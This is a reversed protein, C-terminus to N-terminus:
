HFGRICDYGYLWDVKQMAIEPLFRTSAAINLNRGLRGMSTPNYYTQWKSELSTAIRQARPRRYKEYQTFAEPWAEEYNELMRSLVWADELGVQSCELWMPDPTFTGNGLGVQHGRYWDQTIHSELPQACNLETACELPAKLSPHWDAPDLVKNASCFYYHTHSPTSFQRVVADPNLWTINANATEAVLPQCAHWISHTTNSTSQTQQETLLTIHVDTSNHPPVVEHAQLAVEDAQLLHKLQAVEINLLPTGYRNQVFEGLPLESLLYASKGFRIQERDPRHALSNYADTLGLASLVKTLNPPLIAADAQPAQTRTSENNTIVDVQEFGALKVARFVSWATM